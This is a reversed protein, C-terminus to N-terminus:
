KERKDLEEPLLEVDPTKPRRVKRSGKFAVGIVKKTLELSEKELVIPEYNKNIEIVLGATCLCYKEACECGPRVIIRNNSVVIGETYLELEPHMHKCSRPDIYNIYRNSGGYSFVLLMSSGNVDYVDTILSIDVECSKGSRRDTIILPGQWAKPQKPNDPEVLMLKYNPIAGEFKDPSTGKVPSFSVKQIVVSEKEEPKQSDCGSQTCMADLGLLCVFYIVAKARKIHMDV